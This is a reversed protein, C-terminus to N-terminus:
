EVSRLFAVVDRLAAVHLRPLDLEHEVLGRLRLQDSIAKWDLLALRNHRGGRGIEVQVEDISSARIGFNRFQHVKSVGARRCIVVVEGPFNPLLLAWHTASGEAFVLTRANCLVQHQDGVRYACPDFVFFGEERMCSAFAAEGAIAGRDLPVDARTVYVCAHSKGRTSEFRAAAVLELWEPTPRLMGLGLVQEPVLLQKVRWVSPGHVLLIREAPLGLARLIELVWPRARLWRGPWALLFVVTAYSERVRQYAWLRGLSETLFHGFHPFLIGGYLYQGELAKTCSPATAHRELARGDRLTLAIRHHCGSRDTVGGSFAAPSIATLPTLVADRILQLEAM